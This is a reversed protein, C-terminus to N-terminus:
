GGCAGALADVVETLGSLRFSASGDGVSAFLLQEELRALDAVFARGDARYTHRNADPDFDWSGRDTSESGLTTTLDSGDIQGRRWDISVTEAGSVCGIGLTAPGGAASRTRLTAAPIEADFDVLEWTGGSLLSCAAPVGGGCATRFLESARVPDEEVGAGRQYLVGLQACGMLDGEDCARAFLESAQELDQEILRGETYMVGLNM